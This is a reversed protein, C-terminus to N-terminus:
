ENKYAYERDSTMPIPNLSIIKNHFLIIIFKVLFIVDQSEVYNDLILLVWILVVNLVIGLVLIMIIVM